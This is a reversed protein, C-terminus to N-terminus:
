FTKNELAKSNGSSVLSLFQANIIDGKLSRRNEATKKEKESKNWINSFRNKWRELAWSRVVVADVLNNSSSALDHQFEHRWLSIEWIHHDQMGPYHINRDNRQKNTEVEPPQGWCYLLLLLLLVICHWHFNCETKLSDKM